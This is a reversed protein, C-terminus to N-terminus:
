GYLTIVITELSWKGKDILFYFGCIKSPRNNTAYVKLGSADNVGVFVFPSRINVFRNGLRSIAVRSLLQATCGGTAVL